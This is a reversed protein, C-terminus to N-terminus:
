RRTTRDYLIGRERLYGMIRGVSDDITLVDTSLTLSPRVPKEYPIDIGVMSSIENRSRRLYLGKPDRVACVELPCRVYCEVFDGEDFLTRAYERQEHFALQFSCIPVLGADFLKRARQLKIKASEVRDARSYGLHPTEARLQDGDLVCCRYGYNTLRDALLNAITTKGSGSLGTFCIVFPRHKRRWTAKASKPLEPDIGDTDPSRAM